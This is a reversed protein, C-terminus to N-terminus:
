PFEEELQGLPRRNEAIAAEIEEPFMEHYDFALRIQRENASGGAAM